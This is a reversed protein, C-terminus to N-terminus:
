GDPSEVWVAGDEVKVAFTPVPATAPLCLAKGTRVDFRAGHRPCEVEHGELAGDELPGDDHTCLDAICYFAGGVNFVIVTEEDFDVWLREGPLIDAVNAVKVFKSM